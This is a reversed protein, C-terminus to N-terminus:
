ENDEGESQQSKESSWVIHRRDCLPCYVVTDIFYNHVNKLESTYVQEIQADKAEFLFKCGCDCKIIPEINNPLELIKM